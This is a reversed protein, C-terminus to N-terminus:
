SVKLTADALEGAHGDDAGDGDSEHQVLRQDLPDHEVPGRPTM